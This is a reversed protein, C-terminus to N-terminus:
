EFCFPRRVSARRGRERTKGKAAETVRQARSEILLRIARRDQLLAGAAREDAASVPELRADLLHQDGLVALQQQLPQLRRLRRPVPLWGDQCREVRAPRAAASQITR